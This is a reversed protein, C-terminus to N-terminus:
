LGSDWDSELTSGVNWSDKFPIEFRDHGWTGIILDDEFDIWVTPGGGAVLVRAGIYSRDADITYRRAYHHRNIWDQGCPQDEYSDLDDADFEGDELDDRPTLDFDNEACWAVTPGACLEAAYEKCLAKLQTTSDM